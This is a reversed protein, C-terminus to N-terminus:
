RRYFADSLWKRNFVFDVLIRLSVIIDGEEGTEFSPPLNSGRAVVLFEKEEEASVSKDNNRRKVAVIDGRLFVSDSLSLSLRVSLSVSRLRHFIFLSPSSPFLFSFSSNCEQVSPFCFHALSRTRKRLKNKELDTPQLLLPPVMALVMSDISLPGRGNNEERPANRSPRPTAYLCRHIIIALAELLVFM